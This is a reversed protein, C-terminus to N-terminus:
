FGMEAADVIACPVMQVHPLWCMVCVRESWLDSPLKGSFALGAFSSPIAHQSESCDWRFYM